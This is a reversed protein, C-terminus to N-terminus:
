VLDRSYYTGPGLHALGSAVYVTLRAVIIVDQSKRQNEKAGYLQSSLNRPTLLRSNALAM